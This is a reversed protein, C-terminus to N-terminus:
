NMHTFDFGSSTLDIFAQEDLINIHDWARWQMILDGAATFEQFACETVSANTQGGAIYRSMDVTETQLATTFYTGDALVQLEHEDGGYGNTTWYQVIQQYNTNFGNFHDGGEDRALMTLVGNHQVKMDRREDPYKSYWVPQGSNDFIVNWPDGNGGRNDIFIYEPDPNNSTTINIYPFDTPVSVGNPMIGDQGPTVGAPTGLSSALPVATVPPALPSAPQAPVPRITTAAPTLANRNAATAVASSSPTVLLPAGSSGGAWPSLVEGPIVESPANTAQGPMAWGVALNDGGGGQKHRAEIYYPQGALLTITASAQSSYENWVQPNTWATVSAILSANTPSANTSFWLESNDDSAIWFRYAGTLPATIFGRVRAGYNQAWNVPGNFSPLQDSLSPSNPYAPSNTLNSVANGTLNTWCEWLLSGTAPILELEALQVSTAAAPNNVRTILLRYGSYATTNTFGYALPQLRNSFTQGTETDLLVLNSSATVGYFQWNCPDGAPNDNASTLAYRNVVHMGGGPYVYQIWAFNTSGNPVVPAQWETSLNDDFAMAATNTPANAGSATIVAANTNPGSVMFQYQYPPIAANTTLNVLPTLTVTVAENQSFSTPTEFIITQNDSAIRTTGPHLGSSAGTVQICQALNTLVAPPVAALRMLVFCTQPPCFQAGPLPSLYSYGLARFAGGDTQAGTRAAGALLAMAALLLHFKKIM